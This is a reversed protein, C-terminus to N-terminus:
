GVERIERPRGAKLARCNDFRHLRHALRRRGEVSFSSLRLEQLWPGLRRPDHALGYAQEADTLIRSPQQLIESSTYGYREM